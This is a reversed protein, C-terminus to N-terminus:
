SWRTPRHAGAGLVAQRWNNAVTALERRGIREIEQREEWPGPDILGSIEQEALADLTAPDLADLEWSEYGHEQTYKEARSDSMKAPNPPLGREEVQPMNLAIRRVDLPAGAFMSVRDFLDRTMDIGSPDHDGFHLIVPRQGGDIVGRLRRGASWAESQSLYGRCSLLPASFRSCVGEFAGVLADKEIWVEPRAEQGVWPDVHFQSACSRVISRPSEWAAKVRTGRTRDVIAEWDILGNLRGESVAGGLRIYEKQKNPIWGRSVFQYYLQRLTLTYGQEAYEEIVSNAKGILELRSRGLRTAEYQIKPM